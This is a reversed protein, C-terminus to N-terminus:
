IEKKIEKKVLWYREYFHYLEFFIELTILYIIIWELFASKRENLVGIIARCEDTSYDLKTNLIAIRPGIDLYKSTQKFIKELQPESWYLDPTEILESYLNLKGRILFLRGISRLADSEKLNLKVGRSIKETTIRTNFIHSEMSGELVALKTSRALGSSFAAKNLLRSKTDGSNIVILDGALFSAESNTLLSAANNSIKTLETQNRQFDDKNEIEVYDMDESEFAERPLPNVRAKEVLGLINQTVFAEDFGWCTISANQGLIMIDGDKGDRQYRFTIIEDPILSTPQLDNSNLLKICERLDYREATTITTCPRVKLCSALAQELANNGSVSTNPVNLVSTRRLFRSPDQLTKPTKGTKVKLEKLEIKDHDKQIAGFKTNLYRSFQTRKFGRRVSVSQLNVLCRLSM